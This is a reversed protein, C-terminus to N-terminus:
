YVFLIMLIPRKRYILIRVEIIRPQSASVLSNCQSGLSYSSIEQSNLKVAFEHIILSATFLTQLDLHLITMKENSVPEIALSVLFVHSKVDLCNILSTCYSCGIQIARRCSSTTFAWVPQSSM